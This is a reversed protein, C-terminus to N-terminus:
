DNQDTATAFEPLTKLFTYAQKIANTNSTHDYACVWGGGWIDLQNKAKASKVQLVPYMVFKMGSTLADAKVPDYEIRLNVIRLYASTLTYDGGLSYNMQLAM